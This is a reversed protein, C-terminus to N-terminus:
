QSDEYDEPEEVQLFIVNYGSTNALVAIKGSLKNAQSWAQEPETATVELTLAIDLTYTKM